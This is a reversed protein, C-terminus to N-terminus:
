AMTMPSRPKIFVAGMFTPLINNMRPDKGLKTDEEIDALNPELWHWAEAQIDSDDTDQLNKTEFGPVTTPTTIVAGSCTDLVAVLLKVTSTGITNLTSPMLELESIRSPINASSKPLFKPIHSM